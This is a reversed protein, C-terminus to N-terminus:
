LVRDSHGLSAGRMTLMDVLVAQKSSWFIVEAEAAPSRLRVGQNMRGPLMGRIPDVVAGHLPIEVPGGLARIGAARM